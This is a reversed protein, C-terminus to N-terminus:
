GLKRQKIFAIFDEPTVSDEKLIKMAEERWLLNGQSSFSRKIKRIAEIAKVSWKVFEDRDVWWVKEGYTVATQDVNSANTLMITIIEADRKLIKIKDKIWNEHSAAQRVHNTPISKNSSEYIKDEAVICLSENLIWWPDPDANGKGNESQYGLLLGLRLHGREFENGDQSKLLSLIEDAEKEFTRHSHYGNKIFEDEIRELCDYIYNDKQEDVDKIEEEVIKSFWNISHTTTSAQRLNEIAVQKYFSDGNKYIENAVVGALYHWYAKYGKLEPTVIIALIQEILKIAEIYDERWIAYQYRVEYKVCEQLKKNNENDTSSQDTIFGDRTSIIEDDAKEWEEGQQLFLELLELFTDIDPQEQSQSYGFELEARLEPPFGKLKKPSVLENELENGFVCVASYDENSRTCRGIAQIIRTKIRENFLLSAAMKRSLFKEQLHTANPMNAIIMMNCSDGAFDIGDYRNALIAVSNDSKVFSEKSKEIDKSTYIETSTGEYYKKVKKVTSDDQTLILNRKSLEKIRLYIEKNQEEKFSANPFMFFRRGISRKDWEAVMPLRHIKEVGFVRELEGSKGLTASMYLRQGANVFSDCTQTPPILPRILINNWSIFMSCAKLHSKINSWPYVLNTEETQADIIPSINSIADIFKSQPVKDVWQLDNTSPSDDAIKNYVGEGIEDKLAQILSVFLNEDEHRSINLSWNSSIYNEAGHADDFILLDADDFFSNTNFISSYNTVAITQATTYKSVSNPDYDRRKGTFATAKIEYQNNAMDVVQNVLQNNPCVFVVKEKNKRRRYEAILLGILTKGSGTPLELAVDSKKFGDKMYSEIMASQYDLLGMIKKKKYDNYMEIPSDFNASDVKNLRFAM